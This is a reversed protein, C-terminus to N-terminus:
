DLDDPDVNPIEVNMTFKEEVPELQDITKTLKDGPSYNMGDNTVTYLVVKGMMNPLDMIKDVIGMSGHHPCSQNKNKVIDGIGFTYNGGYTEDIPQSKAAKIKEKSKKVTTKFSAQAAKLKAKAADMAAEAGEVEADVEDQSIEKLRNFKKRAKNYVASGKPAKLASSFKIKKGTKPNEIKEDGHTKRVDLEDLEDSAIEELLKGLKMVSEEKKPEEKDEEGNEDEKAGMGTNYTDLDVRNGAVLLHDVERYDFQQMDGDEDMGFGFISNEIDDPDTLILYRGYVYVKVPVGTLVFQGIIVNNFSKVPEM